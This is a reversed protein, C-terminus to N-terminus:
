LEWSHCRWCIKSCKTEMTSAMVRQRAVTQPIFSITKIVVLNPHRSFGRRQLYPRQNPQKGNIATSFMSWFSMSLIGPKLLARLPEQIVALVQRAEDV